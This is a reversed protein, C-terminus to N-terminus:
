TLQFTTRVRPLMSTSKPSTHWETLNTKCHLVAQKTLIMTPLSSAKSIRAIVPGHSCRKGMVFRSPSTTPLTSHVGTHTSSYRGVFCDIDVRGGPRHGLNYALHDAFSKASDWMTPSAAHLGFYAVSWEDNAMAQDARKAYEDLSADSEQILLDTRVTPTRVGNIASVAESHRNISRIADPCKHYALLADRVQNETFPRSATVEAARQAWIDSAFQPSFLKLM